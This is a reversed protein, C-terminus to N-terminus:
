AEEAAHRRSHRKLIVGRQASHVFDVIARVEPVLPLSELRALADRTNLRSQLIVRFARRIAAV